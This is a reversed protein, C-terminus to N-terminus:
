LIAEVLIALRQGNLEIVRRDRKVRNKLRAPTIDLMRAYKSRNGNCESSIFEAQTQVKVVTYGTDDLLSKMTKESLKM